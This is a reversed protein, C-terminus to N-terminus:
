VIGPYRVASGGSSLQMSPNGPRLAAAPETWPQPKQPPMFRLPGLPPAGYRLGPFTAIGEEIRGIVPGNTTKVPATVATAIYQAAARGGLALAAGAGILGRRHIRFDTM